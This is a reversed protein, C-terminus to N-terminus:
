TEKIVYKLFLKQRLWHIKVWEIQGDREKVIGGTDASNFSYCWYMWHVQNKNNKTAHMFWEAMTDYYRIDRPDTFRSGFEGLIIPYKEGRLFRGFSANLQQRIQTSSLEAQGTVSPGYLHPSIIIRSRYSRSNLSQFFWRPDDIGYKEIINPDVIFGNGWSLKYGTQGTGEILFMATKDLKSIEDMVSLYLRGTEAWGMGMSDPENLIDLFVRGRLERDFNKLTMFSKWLTVWRRTCDEVNRAIAEMGMPHYDIVVYMGSKVFFQVVWHFRELTRGKTPIYTNCTKEASMPWFWPAPLTKGRWQVHEAVKSYNGVKQCPYAQSKLPLDLDLFVFPLRVSNFGLLRLKYVITAFDSGLASGGVWLGDVFTQKNNFGFWNIGRFAFAKNGAYFGGQRITIPQLAQVNGAAYLGILCIISLLRTM